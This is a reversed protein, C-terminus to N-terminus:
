EAAGPVCEEEGDPLRVPDPVLSGASSAALQAGAVSVCQGLLRTSSQRRARSSMVLRCVMGRDVSSDIVSTVRLLCALQRRTMGVRARVSPSGCDDRDDRSVPRRRSRAGGASLGQDPLPRRFPPYVRRAGRLSAISNASSSALFLRGDYRLRPVPLHGPDIRWPGSGPGPQASCSTRPPPSAATDADADADTTAPCMLAM